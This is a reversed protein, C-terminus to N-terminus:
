SVRMRGTAAHDFSSSSRFYLLMSNPNRDLDALQISSISFRDWRQMRSRTACGAKGPRSAFSIPHTRIDMIAPLLARRLPVTCPYRGVAAGLARRLAVLFTARGGFCFGVTAIQADAFGSVRLHDLAADADMLIAHKAKTEFKGPAPPAAKAFASAFMGGAALLAFALAIKIMVDLRM